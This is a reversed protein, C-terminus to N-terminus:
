SCDNDFHYGFKVCFEGYDLPIKGSKDKIDIKAHKGVLFKVVELQESKAANHLATHGDNDQLDLKARKSVLFKVAEIQGEKAAAFLFKLGHLIFHHSRIDIAL